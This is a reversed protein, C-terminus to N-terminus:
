LEEVAVCTSASKLPTLQHFGGVLIALKGLTQEAHSNKGPRKDRAAGEKGLWSIAITRGGLRGCFCQCGAFGQAVPL